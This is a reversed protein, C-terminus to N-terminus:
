GFFAWITSSEVALKISIATVGLAACLIILVTRSLLRMEQQKEQDESFAHEMASVFKRDLKETIGELAIDVSTVIARARTSLDSFRKANEKRRHADYTTCLEYSM